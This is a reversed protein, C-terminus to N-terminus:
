SPTTKNKAVRERWLTFLGACIVVAAGLVVNAKLLDGFITVGLISAFVLQLYAFPQIASAEAQEFAKILLFHGLAGSICLAGMWVWDPKALPEWVWIGAMTMVVAGSIGTWFFSTMATDKRAVLRTLLGYVAFMIASVVAILSYPSFVAVGPQLIILMGVFGIGIAVWRRWGVAEGLVPGAFAAILLPYIAFIAHAEVLGLYVFGLIAICIEAALLVGRVVQLGLQSTSAISRFGQKQRSAFALVFAAFFWYRIMVIMMVNYNEALHRSIGDQLAFIMTTVIMLIIGARTNNKSM